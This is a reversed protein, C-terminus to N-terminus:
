RYVWNRYAGRWDQDYAYGREGWYFARRNQWRANRYDQYRREDEDDRQRRAHM